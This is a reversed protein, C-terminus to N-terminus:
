SQMGAQERSILSDTSFEPQDAPSTTIDDEICSALACLFTLGALLLVGRFLGTLSFRTM